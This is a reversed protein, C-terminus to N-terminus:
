CEEQGQQVKKYCRIMWEVKHRPLGYKEALQPYKRNKVKWETVIMPRVIEQYPHWFFLRRVDKELEEYTGATSLSFFNAAAVIMEERKPHDDKFMQVPKTIM